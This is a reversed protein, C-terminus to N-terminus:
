IAFAAKGGPRPVISANFTSGSSGAGSFAGGAGVNIVYTEGSALRGRWVGAVAAPDAPLDCSPDYASTFSKSSPAARVASGAPKLTRAALSVTRDM